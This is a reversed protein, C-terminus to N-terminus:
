RSTDKPGKRELSGPLELLCRASQAPSLLYTHSFTRTCGQARTSRGPLAPIPPTDLLYLHLRFVLLAEPSLPFCPPHEDCPLLLFLIPSPPSRHPLIAHAKPLQNLSPQGGLLRLGCPPFLVLPTPALPWLGSSVVEQLLFPLLSPPFSSLLPWSIYRRRSQRAPPPPLQNMRNRSTPDAGWSTGKKAWCTGLHHTHRCPAGQSWKQGPHSPKRTAELM